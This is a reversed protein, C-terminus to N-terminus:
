DRENRTRVSPTGAPSIRRRAPSPSFMYQCRCTSSLRTTLAVGIVFSVMVAAVIEVTRLNIWVQALAESFDLSRAGFPYLLWADLLLVGSTLVVLSALWIGFRIWARRQITWARSLYELRCLHFKAVVFGVGGGFLFAILIRSRFWEDLQELSVLQIQAQSMAPSVLLITAMCAAALPRGTHKFM